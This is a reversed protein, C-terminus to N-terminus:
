FQQRNGCKLCRIRAREYFRLASQEDFVIPEACRSCRLPLPALYEAHVQEKIPIHGAKAFNEAWLYFGTKRRIDTVDVVDTVRPVFTFLLAEVVEITYNLLVPLHWYLHYWQSYRADDGSFVFNFNRPETQIVKFTTVLHMAKDYFEALGNNSKRDYRIEEIRAPDFILPHSTHSVADCILKSRGSNGQDKM